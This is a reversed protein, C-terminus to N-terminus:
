EKLQNNEYDRLYMFRQGKVVQNKTISRSIIGNTSNFHKATEKISNFIRGNTTCIVKIYYDPTYNKIKDNKDYIKWDFATIDIEGCHTKSICSKLLNYENIIIDYQKLWDRAEICNNFVRQLQKCYVKCNYFIDKTLDIDNNLYLVFSCDNYKDGNGDIHRIVDQQSKFIEKTEICEIKLYEEIEYNKIEDINEEYVKWTLPVHDINTKYNNKVSRMVTKSLISDINNKKFYIEADYQSSFMRKLEKCYVKTGIDDKPGIVPLNDMDKNELFTTYWTFKSLYENNKDRAIFTKNRDNDYGWAFALANYYKRIEDYCNFIKNDDLRIIKSAIDMDYNKIVDNNEDYFKWFLKLNGDKIAGAYFHKETNYTNASRYLVVGVIRRAIRKDNYFFEVAKDINEFVRGLTICYIKNYYEDPFDNIMTFEDIDINEYINNLKCFNLNTNDNAIYGMSRGNIGNYVAAIDPNAYIIKEDLKVVAKDIYDKTYGDGGATSNYGKRYSNFKNVYFKEKECAERHTLHEELWTHEFNNWGYKNIAKAFKSQKDYPLKTGYGCGRAGWRHYDKCTIGVYKKNNKKNTHCYVKWSKVNSEVMEKKM